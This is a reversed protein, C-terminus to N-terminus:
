SGNDPSKKFAMRAVESRGKCLSAIDGASVEQCSAMYEGTEGVKNM